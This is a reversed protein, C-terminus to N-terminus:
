GDETPSPEHLLTDPDWSPKRKMKVELKIIVKKLERTTWNDEHNAVYHHLWRLSTRRNKVFPIVQAINFVTNIHEVIELSCMFRSLAKKFRRKKFAEEGQAFLKGATEEPVESESVKPCRVAKQAFATCSLTMLLGGWLCLWGRWLARNPVFVEVRGQTASCTM